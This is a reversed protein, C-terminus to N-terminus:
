DYTPHLSVKAASGRWLAMRYPFRLFTAYGRAVFGDTVDDLSLIIAAVEDSQEFGVHEAIRAQGKSSSMRFADGARQQMPAVIDAGEDLGDRAQFGFDYM